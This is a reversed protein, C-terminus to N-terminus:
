KRGRLWARVAPSPSGWTQGSIRRAEYVGDISEHINNTLHALKSEMQGASWDREATGIHRVIELAEDLVSKKRRDLRSDTKRMTPIKSLKHLWSRIEDPTGM